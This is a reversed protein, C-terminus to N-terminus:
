QNIHVEYSLQNYLKSLVSIVVVTISSFILFICFFRVTFLFTVLRYTRVRVLEGSLRRDACFTPNTPTDMMAVTTPTTTRDSQTLTMMASWFLCLPAFTSQLQNFQMTSKTTFPYVDRHRNICLRRKRKTLIYFVLYKDHHCTNFIWQCNAIYQLINVDFTCIFTVKYM